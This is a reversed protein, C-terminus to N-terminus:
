GWLETPQWLLHEWGADPNAGVEQLDFGVVAEWHLAVIQKSKSVLPTLHFLNSSM